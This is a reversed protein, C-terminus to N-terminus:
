SWPPFFRGRIVGSFLIPPLNRYLLWLGGTVGTNDFSYLL